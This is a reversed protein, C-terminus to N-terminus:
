ERVRGSSEDNLCESLQVAAAPMHFNRRYLCCGDNSCDVIDGLVPRSAHQMHPTCPFRNFWMCIFPAEADTPTKHTTIGDQSLPTSQRPSTPSTPSSFVVPVERGCTALVCGGRNGWAIVPSQCVTGSRLISFKASTGHVHPHAIALLHALCKAGPAGLNFSYPSPPECHLGRTPHVTRMCHLNATCATRTARPIPFSM